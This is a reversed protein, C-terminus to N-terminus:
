MFLSVYSALLDFITLWDLLFKGLFLSIVAAIVRSFRMTESTNGLYVMEPVKIAILFHALYVLM